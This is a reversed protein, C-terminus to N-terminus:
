AGDQERATLRAAHAFVFRRKEKATSRKPLVLEVDQAVDPRFRNENGRSCIWCPPRSIGLKNLIRRRRATWQASNRCSNRSHRGFVQENEPDIHWEHARVIQPFQDIAHM